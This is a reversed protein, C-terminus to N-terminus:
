RDPATLIGHGLDALADKLRTSRVDAVWTNLRDIEAEDLARRRHFRSKPRPPIPGQIFRLRAVAQFGFYTNIRDLIQPTLYTLELAAAGSARLTLTGGGQGRTLKEPLTQNALDQGIIEPWRTAIRAEAFGRKRLAPLAVARATKGIRRPKSYRRQPDIPETKDKYRAM